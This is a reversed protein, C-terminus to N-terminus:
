RLGLWGVACWRITLLLSSHRGLVGQSSDSHSHAFCSRVIHFLFWVPDVGQPPPPFQAVGYSM